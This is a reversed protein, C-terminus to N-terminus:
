RRVCKYQVPFLWVVFPKRALCSPLLDPHGDTIVRFCPRVGSGDLRGRTSCPSRSYRAVKTSHYRPIPNQIQVLVLVLVLVLVPLLTPPCAVPLHYRGLYTTPAAGMRITLHGAATELVVPCTCRLCVQLRHRGSLLTSWARFLLRSGAARWGARPGKRRLTCNRRVQAPALPCMPDAFSSAISGTRGETSLIKVEADRIAIVNNRYKSLQAYHRPAWVHSKENPRGDLGCPERHHGNDQDEYAVWGWGTV